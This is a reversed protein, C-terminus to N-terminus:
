LHEGVNKDAQLCDSLEFGPDTTNLISHSCCTICLLEMVDVTFV